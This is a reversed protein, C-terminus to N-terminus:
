YNKWNTLYTQLVVKCTSSTPVTESVPCGRGSWWVASTVRLRGGWGEGVGFPSFTNDENLSVMRGFGSTGSAVSNGTGSYVGTTVNIPNYNLGFGTQNGPKKNLAWILPQTPSTNLSLWYNTDNGPPNLQFNQGGGNLWNQYCLASNNGGTVFNKCSPSLNGKLWNTDRMNKVAEIGERALGLAILQQKIQTTARLSYNALGIAASIGMTLIFAAVLTEILTQGKQKRM